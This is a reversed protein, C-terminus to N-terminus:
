YVRTQICELLLRECYYPNQIRTRTVKLVPLKQTLEENKTM